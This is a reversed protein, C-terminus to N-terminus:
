GCPVLLRKQQRQGHYVSWSILEPSDKSLIPEAILMSQINEVADLFAEEQIPRCKTVSNEGKVFLNRLQSEESLSGSASIGVSNSM